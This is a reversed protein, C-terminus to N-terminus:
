LITMIKARQSNMPNSTTQQNKPQNVLEGVLLGDKDVGQAGTSSYLIPQNPHEVVMRTRLDRLTVDSDLIRDHLVAVTRGGYQQRVSEPLRFWYAEAEALVVEWESLTEINPLQKRIKSGPQRQHLL